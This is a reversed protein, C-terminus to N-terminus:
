IAMYLGFKAKRPQMLKIGVHIDVATQSVTNM